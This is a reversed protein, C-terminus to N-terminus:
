PFSISKFPTFDMFFDEDYRKIKLRKKEVGTVSMTVLCTVSHDALRTPSGM